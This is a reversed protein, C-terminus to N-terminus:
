HKGNSDGYSQANGDRRVYLEAEPNQDSGVYVRQYTDCRCISEESVEENALAEAPMQEDETHFSQYHEVRPGRPRPPPGQNRRGDVNEGKIKEEDEHVHYNKEDRRLRRRKVRERMPLPVMDIRMPRNGHRIVVIDDLCGCHERTKELYDEDESLDVSADLQSGSFQCQDQLGCEERQVVDFQKNLSGSTAHQEENHGHHMFEPSQAGEDVDQPTSEIERHRNGHQLPTLHVEGDLKFDQVCGHVHCQCDTAQNKSHFPVTLDHENEVKPDDEPVYVPADVAENPSREVPLDNFNDKYCHCKPWSWAPSGHENLGRFSQGM